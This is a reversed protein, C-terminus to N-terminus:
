KERIGKAIEDNIFLLSMSEWNAPNQVYEGSEFMAKEALRRRVLGRNTLKVGKITEKRWLVFSNAAKKLEGRNFNVVVSSSAFGTAGINFSLAVMADFQQQNPERKCAALVAKEFRSLDAKLLAEAQEDSIVQGLKVDAGTHGVGITLKGATCYYAKTKVGEMQKLWAIMKESVYM